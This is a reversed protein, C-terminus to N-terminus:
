FNLGFNFSFMQKEDEEGEALPFGFDFNMPIEQFFQPILLEMGFGVTVRVVGDNLYASDCFVKGYLTEEFLPHAIETGAVIIYDSGIPDRKIGSRPGVGRYDFGRLTGIGGAYYKEFVPTYGYQKSASFRTSWITRREVIDEYLTNYFTIGASLETFDFDGGFVGYQEVSANFKYGESPRYIRDTTNKGIGFKFSTLWNDGQDAMVEDPTVLQRTFLNPDNEDPVAIYDFDGITVMEVKATGEISWDNDFRHGLTISTGRRQEEYSERYRRFLFLNYDLYIPQDNLYPEYFKLNARTMDTGPELSLRLRQGAGVYSNGSLFEKLSKPKRAADFNRQEISFQGLVGNNTDVGIGFMLMGTNTEGVEVLADRKDPYDGVPEIDVSSFLGSGALRRRAKDSADTNYVTGPLFGHRDFDRRVVKDQTEYNGTVIVKNLYYKQGENVDINLLVEGPVETYKLQPRVRTYIYGNSGYLRTIAREAKDTNEQRVFDGPQVSIESALQQEDYLKNGSFTMEKFTYRPGETIIFVIEVKSNDKNFNKEVAVQADLFGEEHYYQAIADVDSELKLDDLKGKNFIPFYKRTKTKGKIKYKPFSERGEYKIKNIKLRQGEDINYVIVGEDQARSDDVKVSAFYYGKDRYYIEIEHAGRNVLYGDLFDNTEFPLQKILKKTKIKKNGVIEVNQVTTAENVIFIINVLSDSGDVPEAVWTVNRIQPMIIIRRSDEAAVKESFYADPRSRVNTMIIDAAVHDNGRIIIDKILKQEGDSALVSVSLLLIISIISFVFRKTMYRYEIAFNGPGRGLM